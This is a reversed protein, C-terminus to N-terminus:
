SYSQLSEFVISIMPRVLEATEATLQEQAAEQLHRYAKCCAEQKGHARLMTDLWFMMKERFMFEDDLLTALAIYRLVETMDFQCRKGSRQIIEPHVLMFKRLAALVLDDGKQRIEQYASLRKQYTDFYSELPQLEDPALYRGDADIITQQLKHNLAPM